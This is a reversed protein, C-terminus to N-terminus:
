RVTKEREFIRRKVAGNDVLRQLLAVHGNAAAMHVAAGLYFLSTILFFYHTNQKTSPRQLVICYAGGTSGREDQANINVGQDLASQVDELDDYRAGDILLEVLEEFNPAM